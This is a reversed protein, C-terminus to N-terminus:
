APQLKLGEHAIEVAELAMQQGSPDMRPGEYRCCWAREFKWTMIAKGDRNCLAISGNMRHMPGGAPGNVSAAIWNFFAKSASVGRKLLINEYRAPGPIVRPADNKGGEQYTTTDIHVNLGTVERFNAEQSVPDGDLTVKFWHGLGYEDPTPTAM